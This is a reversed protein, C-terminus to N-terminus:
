VKNTSTLTSIFTVSLKERDESFSMTWIITSFLLYSFQDEAGLM